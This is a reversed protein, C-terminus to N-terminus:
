LYYTYIPCIINYIIGNKIYYEYEVEIKRSYDKNSLFYYTCGNKERRGIIHM